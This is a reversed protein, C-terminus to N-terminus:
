PTLVALLIALTMVATEPWRRAPLQRVMLMLAGLYAAVGIPPGVFFIIAAVTATAAVQWTSIREKQGDLKLLLLLFGASSAAAAGGEWVRFWVTELAYALPFICVVALAGIRASKPSGLKEFAM